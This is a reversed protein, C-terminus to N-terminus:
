APRSRVPSICSAGCRLSISLLNGQMPLSAVKDVLFQNAILQLKSFTMAPINGSFICPVTVNLKRNRYGMENYGIIDLLM